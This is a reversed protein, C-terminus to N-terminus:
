ERAQEGPTRLSQLRRALYATYLNIGLGAGVIMVGGCFMNLTLREDFLFYAGIAAVVIEGMCIITVRCPAYLCCLRIDDDPRHRGFPRYSSYRESRHFATSGPRVASHGHRLLMYAHGPLFPFLAGLRAPKLSAPYACFAVAASLASCLGALHGWSLNFGDARRAAMFRGGGRLYGPLHLLHRRPFNQRGFLPRGTHHDLCPLLYWLVLAEFIPITTLALTILASAGFNATAAAVNGANARQKASGGSIQGHCDGTANTTRCPRPRAM